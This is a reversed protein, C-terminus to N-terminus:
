QSSLKEFYTDADKEHQVFQEYTITDLLYILVGKLRHAIFHDNELQEHLDCQFHDKFEEERLKFWLFDAHARLDLTQKAQLTDQIKHLSDVDHDVTQDIWPLLTKAQKAFDQKDLKIKKSPSDM